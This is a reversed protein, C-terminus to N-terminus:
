SIAGCDDCACRFGIVESSFTSPYIGSRVFTQTLAPADAWAGGRVVKTQGIPPGTPNRNLGLSYYDAEYWDAVWEWVNGAMDAAGYISNGEDFTGVPTTHAFGSEASNAKGNDWENGWPWLLGGDGRAAKEWEAETPLRKRGNWECYAAADHWTVGVVPHKEEGPAYNNDEWYVPWAHGTETVFQEYDGNTVEYVDIWYADLYVNHAPQTNTIGENHGMLFGGAEVPVMQILNGGGMQFEDKFIFFLGLTFLIFGAFGVSFMKTPALRRGTNYRAPLAATSSPSLTELFNDRLNPRLAVCTTILENLRDIQKCFLVLERAKDVKIEGALNEYDIGLQFCINRLDNLTFHNNLLQQLTAQNM